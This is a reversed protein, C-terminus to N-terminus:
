TNGSYRELSKLRHGHVLKNKELIDLRKSLTASVSKILQKLEQTGNQYSEQMQQHFFADSNDSERWNGTNGPETVGDMNIGDANALTIVSYQLLFAISLID